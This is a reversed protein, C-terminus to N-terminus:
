FGGMYALLQADFIGQEIRNLQAANVPTGTQTVTGPDPTLTVSAGAEASKTYRRPHEVIRDTWQTTTYSM